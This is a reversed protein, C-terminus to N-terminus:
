NYVRIEIPTNLFAGNIQTNDPIYKTVLFIPGVGDLGSQFYYEGGDWTPQGIFILSKNPLFDDQFYASYSGVNNYIFWVNGITNELVTVVPAGTNYYLQLSYTYPLTAVDQNAIFYTGANNNPAGYITLDFNDPNTNIYYTVGKVLPGNDGDIEFPDDGGSQTLLATFVKYPKSNVETVIDHIDEVIYKENSSQGFGKLQSRQQIPM